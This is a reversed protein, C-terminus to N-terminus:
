DNNAEGGEYVYTQNGDADFEGTEDSYGDYVMVFYEKWEHDCTLCSMKRIILNDEYDDDYCETHESGCHPCTWYDNKVM